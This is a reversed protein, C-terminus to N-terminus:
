ITITMNQVLKRVHKAIMDFELNVSDGPKKEGLTTHDRTHPIIMVSFRTPEAAVVTLSVGDVAVSCKPVLLDGFGEPFSFWVTLWDGALQKELIKGVTDIHGTVFHGGIADGARLARELNVLDGPTLRGLVTKDLTEPGVQFTFDGGTCSVVTLCTGNVAISEGLELKPALTPETVTLTRGGHGDEATRITGRTQVLGTFM